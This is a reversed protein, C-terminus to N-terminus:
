LISLEKLAVEFCSESIQQFDYKEMFVTSELVALTADIASPLAEFTLIDGSEKLYKNCCEEITTRVRNNELKELPVEDKKSMNAALADMFKM